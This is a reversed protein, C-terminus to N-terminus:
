NKLSDPGGSSYSLISKALYAIDASPTDDDVNFNVGSEAIIHEWYDDLIMKKADDRLDKMQKRTFSKIELEIGTEPLTINMGM